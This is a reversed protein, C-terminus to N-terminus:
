KLTIVSLLSLFLMQELWRPSVLHLIPVGYSILVIRSSGLSLFWTKRGYSSSWQSLGLDLSIATVVAAISWPLALSCWTDNM